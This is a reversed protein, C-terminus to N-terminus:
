RQQYLLMVDQWQMTGRASVNYAARAQLSTKVDYITRERGISGDCRTAHVHRDYQYSCCATRTMQVNLICARSSPMSHESMLKKFQTAAECAESMAGKDGSYNVCILRSNAQASSHLAVHMWATDVSDNISNSSCILQACEGVKTIAALNCHCGTPGNQASSSGLVKSCRACAM